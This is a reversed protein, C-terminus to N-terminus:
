LVCQNTVIILGSAVYLVTNKSQQLIRDQGDKRPIGLM